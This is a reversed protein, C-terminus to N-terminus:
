GATRAQRAEIAARLRDVHEASWERRGRKVPPLENMPIGRTLNDIDRLTLCLARAVQATSQTPAGETTKAM